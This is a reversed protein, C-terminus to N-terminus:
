APPPNPICCACYKSGTCRRPYIKAGWPFYDYCYQYNKVPDNKSICFGNRRTCWRHDPKCVKCCNCGSGLINTKMALFDPDPCVACDRLAVSGPSVKQCNQNMKQVQCDVCCVENSYDCLDEREPIEWPLIYDCSHWPLQTINLCKGGYGSRRTRVCYPFISPRARLERSDSDVNAEDDDEWDQDELDLEDVESLESDLYDEDDEWDQDELDLEDVESLESDFYDPELVANQDEVHDLEDVESARTLCLEATLILCLAVFFKM